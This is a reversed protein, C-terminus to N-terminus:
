RKGDQVRFPVSRIDPDLTNGNLYLTVMVRYDGAPLKGALAVGFDGASNLLGTGALRVRGGTDLVLYVCDLKGGKLATRHVEKLPRRVIKFERGFTEVIDIDASVTLGKDDAAVGAIAARRPTAYANYSGVGLPYTMDRFVALETAETSWSKLFYPGNTVLFYGHRAGFAKLARWRATAQEATVLGALPEPVFARGELEDVLNALKATLARDRVMDLWPVGLRRAEAESFAAMGRGVAEEMLAMVHWPVPSWPPAVVAAHDPNVSADRLYVDVLLLERVFTTEGVRFTKSASDVGALKFGALQRRLLATARDVDPDYRRGDGTKTGWRYAFAYGYILDAAETKTGDHSLSTMAGYRLALNAQTGAGVPKLRGSAADPLVADAPVQVV